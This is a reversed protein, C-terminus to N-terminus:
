APKAPLIESGESGDEEVPKADRLSGFARVQPWITAVALVVVITMAGGFVVAAV